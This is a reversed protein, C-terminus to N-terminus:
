QLGECEAGNAGTHPLVLMVFPERADAPGRPLTLGSLAVVIDADRKKNGTSDLLRAREVTGAASVKLSLAARYRGPITTPRSCLARRVAKQLLTPYDRDAIIPSDTPTSTVSVPAPETGGNLVYADAATFYSALGSPALLLRLAEAAHFVGRVEGSRRGAVIDSAYLGTFGTAEDFAALADPLPQSAIEFPMTATAERTTKPPLEGSAPQAAFAVCDVMLWALVICAIYAICTAVVAGFMDKKPM